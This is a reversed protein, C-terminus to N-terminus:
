VINKFEFRAPRRETGLKEAERIPGLDDSEALGILALFEPRKHLQDFLMALPLEPPDDLAELTVFLAGIQHQRRGM